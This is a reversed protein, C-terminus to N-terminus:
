HAVDVYIRGPLEGVRFGHVHEVGLAISVYGEYDEVIAYSTIVPLDIRHIGSVTATGDDRHAQAPNMAILLHRAGPVPVPRDSPGARVQGVYKVSYEPLAGGIVFVIRDFGDATHAAFRIGTLVPVPPVVPHHTVTV